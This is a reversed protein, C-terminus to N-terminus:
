KINIWGNTSYICKEKTKPNLWLVNTQQPEIASIVIKDIIKM